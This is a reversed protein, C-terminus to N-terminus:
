AGCDELGAVCGENRDVGGEARGGAPWDLCDGAWSRPGEFDMAATAAGGESPQFAIWFLFAALAVLFFDDEGQRRHVFPHELKGVVHPKREVAIAGLVNHRPHVPGEMTRSGAVDSNLPDASGQSAEELVAVQHELRGPRDVGADCIGDGLLLLPHPDSDVVNGQSPVDAPFHISTQSLEPLLKLHFVAPNVDRSLNPPQAPRHDPGPELLLLVAGRHYGCNKALRTQVAEATM